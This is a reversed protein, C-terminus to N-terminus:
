GELNFSIPIVVWAAENVDGRHAPVFRWTKVTTLASQDLRAYGSSKKLTLQDVRGAANVLVRLLVKGEEEQDKSAEPYDPAPNHLYNASAQPLILPASSEPKVNSLAQKTQTPRVPTTALHTPDTVTESESDSAALSQSNAQSAIKKPEIPSKLLPKSKKLSDPRKSPVSKSQEPQKTTKLKKLPEQVPQSPLNAQQPANSVWSVQIAQPLELPTETKSKPPECSFIAVHLLLVLVLALAHRIGTQQPTDFATPYARSPNPDGQFSFQVPLFFYCFALM